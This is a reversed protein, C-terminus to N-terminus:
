ADEQREIKPPSKPEIDIYDPLDPKGSKSSMDQMKKRVIEAQEMADMLDAVTLILRPDGKTSQDDYRIVTFILLILPLLDIALASAIPPILSHWHLLVGKLINPQELTLPEPLDFTERNAIKDALTNARVQTRQMFSKIVDRQGQTRINSPIVVGSTLSLLNREISSAVDLGAMQSLNQNICSVAESAKRDDGSNMAISLNALCSASSSQITELESKAKTISGEISGLSKVVQGFTNSVPGASPIGSSGGNIEAQQLGLTDDKFASIDGVYTLFSNVARNANGIRQEAVTVISTGSIRKIENQTLTVVNWYTSLMLILAIGGFVTAWGQLRYQGKSLDPVIKFAYQWFLSMALFIVIGTLAIVAKFYWDANPTLSSLGLITLLGSVLAAMLIVRMTWLNPM